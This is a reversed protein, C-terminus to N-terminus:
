QIIINNSYPFGSSHVLWFKANLLSSHPLTPLLIHDYRHCVITCRSKGWTELVFEIQAQWLSWIWISSCTDGLAIWNTVLYTSWDPSHSWRTVSAIIIYGERQWWIRFNTIAVIYPENKQAESFPLKHSTWYYLRANDPLINVITFVLVYGCTCMVEERHDRIVSPGPHNGTVVLWCFKATDNYSM